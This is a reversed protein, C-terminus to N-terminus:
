RVTLPLYSRYPLANENDEVIIRIGGGDSEIDLGEPLDLMAFDGTVSTAELLEFETGVPPNYGSGFRVRLTGDLVIPGNVVLRDYGAGPDPGEIEFDLVTPPQMTLPDTWTLIGPSLGPAVVGQPAFGPPPDLAGNGCYAAGPEDTLKAISFTGAAACIEGGAQNAVIWGSSMSTVGSGASKLLRGGNTFTGGGASSTFGADSRIEVLAGAANVFPTNDRAFFHGPGNLYITGENTLSAGFRLYAANNLFDAGSITLLGTNTFVGDDEFSCGGCRLGTGGFTLTAGGPGTTLKTVSNGNPGVQVAGTPSGTIIGNLTHLSPGTLLVTAGAAADFTTDTFTNHDEFELTGVQAEITGAQDVVQWGTSFNTVGNGGSKRLTGLNVLTAGGASSTFDGDTQIDFLGHSEVRSLDRGFFNGTNSFTTDGNIVLTVGGAIRVEGTGALVLSGTTLTVTHSASEDEVGVSSAYTSDLTLSNVTHNGHLGVQINAVPAILVDDDPGPVGPPMWSLPCEWESTQPRGNIGDCTPACHSGSCQLWVKSAAPGAPAALLEPVTARGGTLALLIFGLLLSLLLNRVTQM